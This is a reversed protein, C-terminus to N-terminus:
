VHDITSRTTSRSTMLFPVLILPHVFSNLVWYQIFYNEHAFSRLVMLYLLVVADLLKM